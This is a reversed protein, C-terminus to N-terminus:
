KRNGKYEKYVQKWTEGRWINFVTSRSINAARAVENGSAKGFLSHITLVEERTLKRSRSNRNPFPRTVNHDKAVRYVHRSTIGFEEALQNADAGDQYRNAIINLQRHSLKTM